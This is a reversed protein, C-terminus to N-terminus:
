VPPDIVKATRSFILGRVIHQLRHDVRDAPKGPFVQHGTRSAGQFSHFFLKLSLLISMFAFSIVLMIRAPKAAIKIKWFAAITSSFNKNQVSGADIASVINRIKDDPIIAPQNSRPVKLLLFRRVWFLCPTREPWLILQYKMFLFDDPGIPSILHCVDVIWNRDTYRRQSHIASPRMMQLLVLWAGM